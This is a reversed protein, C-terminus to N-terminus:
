IYGNGEIPEGGDDEPPDWSLTCGDGHVDAVVLPGRPAVPKSLVVVEADASAEGSSNKVELKYRGSDSREVNEIKLVARKKETIVKIRGGVASKTILKGNFFWLAEPPPEGSIPIEYKITEGTRLRLNKM